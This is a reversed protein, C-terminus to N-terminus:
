SKQMTGLSPRKVQFIIHLVNKSFKILPLFIGTGPNGLLVLGLREKSLDTNQRISTEVKAKIKLVQEKVEELGIMEMIKDIAPNYAKEQDKQRQWETKSNSKNHDTATKIHERLKSRQNRSFLGPESTTASTNNPAPNEPIDNRKKPPESPEKHEADQAKNAQKRAAELDARMQERIAKQESELRADRMGRNLREMDEELKGVEKLHRQNREEQRLKEDLARQARKEAEKRERECRFCAPPAGRHCKWSQNHGNSCNQGMAFMCLIKSHNYLQHCSSPCKHLGCKLMVGSFCCTLSQLKFLMIIWSVM